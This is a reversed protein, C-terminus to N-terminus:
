QRSEKNAITLTQLLRAFNQQNGSAIVRSVVERTTSFGFDRFKTFMAEAYELDYGDFDFGFNDALYSMFSERLPNGPQVAGLVADVIPSDLSYLYCRFVAELVEETVIAGKALILQVDEYCHDSLISAFDPFGDRSNVEFKDLLYKFRLTPKSSDSRNWTARYIVRSTVVAGLSILKEIAAMVTPFENEESCEAAIAELSLTYIDDSYVEVEVLRSINEFYFSDDATMPFPVEVGDDEDPQAILYNGVEGSWRCCENLLTEVFDWDRWMFANHIANTSIINVSQYNEQEKWKLLLYEVYEKHGTSVANALVSKNLLNTNKLLLNNIHYANGSLTPAPARIHDWNQLRRVSYIHQRTGFLGSSILVSNPTPSVGISLATEVQNPETLDLARWVDDSDDENLTKIPPDLHRSIMEQAVTLYGKKIAFAVTLASFRTANSSVLLMVLETHNDLMLQKIDFEVGKERLRTSLKAPTITTPDEQLLACILDLRGCKGANRLSYRVHEDSIHPNCSYFLKIYDVADSHKMFQLLPCSQARDLCSYKAGRQIMIALIERFQPVRYCKTAFAMFIAQRKGYCEFYFNAKAAPSLWCYLYVSKCLRSIRSLQRMNGFAMVFIRSWIEPPLYPTSEPPIFSDEIEDDISLILQEFPQSLM